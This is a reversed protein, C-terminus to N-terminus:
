GVLFWVILDFNDSQFKDEIKINDKLRKVASTDGSKLKSLVDQASKGMQTKSNGNEDRVEEVVQNKLWSKISYALSKIAEEEGRDVEQPVFRNKNKHKSLADLAEKQNLLVSNGDKDTYILDHSSYSFEKVGSPRAPYGLLAIIGDKPCIETEKKFGTYVGKPMKDYKDRALNLEANLDQRFSELSLDEFGLGQDSVEIDDWSTQMQKLMRAKQSQELNDDEIREKLNATFHKDIESGALKMVTMRNEIRDQLNLYSNINDSPWFNVGYITDNISGLRDIRGMRQIVRVPNWHIDYNIVYDCDQLNQGESLCDTAILIDIPNDIQEKIHPYTQCVWEKWKKYREFSSLNDPAKFAKWEKEMYLKTYPAFRELIPEFKSSSHDADTKSEDGSVVAIGEFGRAKLQDFLYFATDKFVTFIVVKQNNSNNGSKRKAKIKSILAELKDDKSKHNNKERLERNIAEKFRYLNSRLSDLSAIDKKLDQKYAELNGASDIESLKVKRKKGLTFEDLDTEEDIELLETQSSDDFIDDAKAQQYNNIRSLANEHHATVKEVTSLFSFWSSELRKVMLIYMMKVLFRDRQKEDRLLDVDEEQEVYFSPQYGSLMPPFNDFMEEFTDFHGIQKPTVFINDPKTREPFTLHDAQGEIMKRTRAVTLSDTLKFFNTPLKKIFDGITRKDENRWENFAKKASRFTYDINRIGLTEYFGKPNDKVMLKFQNRIDMLSNNIPTASLMLVKINENKKLLTNVLYNYRNSKANRLNHSEDIVLLKPRDSQFYEKIKLADQHRELRDDQLDTHFRITYNFQDDEFRSDQKVLFKRWNQELKKPCLLIIEAGELQFFKMVALASWTKGLGVADAIIAGNYKQLMKILSLVGKQQFEYLTNYVVTNELRGIQRNFNPDEKDSVIQEGFLEFLVKYYLERPTYQVFITEIEKILYQKFDIKKGDVTKKDHAQASPWLNEFWEKIENYDSHTGQGIINLEVNNTKKLGVGAETLNSSGMIYYHEPAEKSASEFIYAKAHCFNPELTKVKVKEQKLFSVAEKALSSLKLAAEVTINDNLLDITRIKINETHVIDGLVFRFENVKENIKASIYALAGITFYGTVLSLKGEKTYKAIWEHVKLNKNKNDLIM